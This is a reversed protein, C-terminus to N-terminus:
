FGLHFKGCFAQDPGGASDPNFPASPDFKFSREVRWRNHPPLPFSELFLEGPKLSLFEVMQGNTIM